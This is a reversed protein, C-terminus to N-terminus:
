HRLLRKELAYYETNLLRPVLIKRAKGRGGRCQVACRYLKKTGWLQVFTLSCFLTYCTISGKLTNHRQKTICHTKNLKLLIESKNTKARKRWCHNLSSYVLIYYKTSHFSRVRILLLALFWPLPMAWGLAEIIKTFFIQM